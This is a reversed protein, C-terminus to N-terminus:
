PGRGPTPREARWNAPDNGSHYVDAYNRQLVDGFGDPEVPWPTIDSYIVEDVVVWSIPDEADDPAQPRKVALREGNNAFNGPFPGVIEMLTRRVEAQRQLWEEATELERIRSKREELQRLAQNNLHHYLMNPADTWKMWSSLISLDEDQATARIASVMLLILPVVSVIFLEFGKVM